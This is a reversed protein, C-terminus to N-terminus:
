RLPFATNIRGDKLLGMAILFRSQPAAGVCFKVDEGTLGGDEPRNAGCQWWGPSGAPCAQRHEFAYLISATVQEMSCADPFLSSFKQPDDGNRNRLRVTGAYIGNANPSQTVEVGAVTAPNIADPRAHFGTASGNSRIEGCFVHDFNIPPTSKSWAPDAPCAVQARAPPILVFVGVIIIVALGTIGGGIGLLGLSRNGTM